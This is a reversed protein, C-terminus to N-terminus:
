RLMGSIVHAPETTGGQTLTIAADIVTWGADWNYGTDAM